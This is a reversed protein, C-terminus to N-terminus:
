CKLLYHKRMPDHNCQCPNSDGTKFTAEESLSWGHELGTPHAANVARLMEDPALATCVSAAVIGVSYVEPDPREAVPLGMAVQGGKLQSAVSVVRENGTCRDADAASPTQYVRALELKTTYSRESGPRSVYKGTDTNKIVFM